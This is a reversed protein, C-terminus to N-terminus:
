FFHKKIKKILWSVLLIILGIGVIWDLYALATVTAGFLITLGLIVFITLLLTLLTIM